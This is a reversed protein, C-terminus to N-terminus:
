QVVHGGDVVLVAGTVYKAEDSALFLVCGAVDDPQGLEKLLYTERMPAMLALSQARRPPPEGPQWMEVRAVLPAARRRSSSTGTRRM